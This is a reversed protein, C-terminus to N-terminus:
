LDILEWGIDSIMWLFFLPQVNVGKYNIAPKIRHPRLEFNEDNIINM